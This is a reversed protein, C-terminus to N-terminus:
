ATLEKKIPWFDTLPQALIANAAACEERTCASRRSANYAAWRRRNAEYEPYREVIFAQIINARRKAEAAHNAAKTSVRAVQMEYAYDREYSSLLNVVLIMDKGELKARLEDDTIEIYSM